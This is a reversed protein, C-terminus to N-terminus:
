PAQERRDSGAQADTGSDPVRNVQRLVKRVVLYLAVHALVTVAIVILILPERLLLEM